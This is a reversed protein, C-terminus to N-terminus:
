LWERQKISTLMGSAIVFMIGFFYFIYEIHNRIFKYILAAKYAM